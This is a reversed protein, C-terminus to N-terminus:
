IGQRATTSLAIYEAECSSLAVVKQNSSSWSVAMSGLFVIQDSTSKWDFIDGAFDSDNYGTLAVPGQSLIRKAELDQFTTPKQMFRSLVSMIYVLDPWTHTLYRLSGMLRRFHTADVESEEEDQEADPYDYDIISDDPPSVVERTLNRQILGIEEEM